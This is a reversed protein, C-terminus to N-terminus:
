KVRDEWIKPDRHTCIIGIIVVRNSKEEVAFHIMYPFKKLPLCRIDEYRIQFYPNQRLTKYEKQIAQYFQKGVGASQKFYWEIGELTDIHAKHTIVIKFAM